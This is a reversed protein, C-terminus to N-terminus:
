SPELGGSHCPQFSDYSDPCVKGTFIWQYTWVSFRRCLLDGAGTTDVVNTVTVPAAQLRQTGKRILSGEKGIKVIAISCQSAIEELAEHPEKGPILEQKAKMRLFWM